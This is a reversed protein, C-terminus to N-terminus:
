RLTWAHLRHIQLKRASSTIPWDAEYEERTMKEQAFATGASLILVVALM